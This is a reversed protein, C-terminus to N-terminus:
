RENDGNCFAWCYPTFKVDVCLVMSHISLHGSHHRCSILELQPSMLMGAPDDCACHNIFILVSLDIIIPYNQIPRSSRSTELHPCLSFIVLEPLHPIFIVNASKPWNGSIAKHVHLRLTVDWSSPRRLPNAWPLIEIICNIYTFRLSPMPLLSPSQSARRLVRGEGENHDQELARTM